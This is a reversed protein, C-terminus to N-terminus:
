IYFPFNLEESYNSKKNTIKTTHYIHYTQVPRKDQEKCLHRLIKKKDTEKLLYIKKKKSIYRVLHKLIPARYWVKTNAKRRYRKPIVGSIFYKRFM